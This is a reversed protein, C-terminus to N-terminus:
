EAEGIGGEVDGVGGEVEGTRACAGGVGGAEVEGVGGGVEGGGVIVRM